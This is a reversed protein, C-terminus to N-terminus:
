LYNSERESWYNENLMQGEAKQILGLSISHREGIFETRLWIKLIEKALETELKRGGLCLINSENHERVLRATEIDSCLAARIGKYKNAIISMGVGTSCILLGRDAEGSAVASAVLAAYYPYRVIEASRSGVDVYEVKLDQMLEVLVKKMEYGGHDCGIWVKM